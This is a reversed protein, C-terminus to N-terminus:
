SSVQRSNKSLLDLADGDCHLGHGTYYFAIDDDPNIKACFNAIYRKMHEYGADRSINRTLGVTGVTDVFMNLLM